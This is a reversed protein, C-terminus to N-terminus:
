SAVAQAAAGLRAIAASCPRRLVGRETVIASILGNPTVDFAPNLAPVDRVGTIASVESPDRHEIPIAAGDPTTRDITSLPAVVYLPVGHARAALALPYTGVKNATDGNAAIRDAGVLVAHVDGRAILGAAAGDVIVQFPVGARELEWATLRAGQLLPRTEDVLVLELPGQRHATKIVGLATGIGGTALAGANCHTLVTAGSPLLAAGLEGMRRDDAMQQDHIRRAEALVAEARRARGAELARDLAWRLNVATPRTAALVSAAVDVPEGQRAALALAYAAAIGILPAGRVALREIGAAVDRWDRTEVYRLERPLLTQDIFRLVGDDWAIPTIDTHTENPL